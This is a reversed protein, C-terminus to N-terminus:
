HAKHHEGRYIVGTGVEVVGKVLLIGKNAYIKTVLRLETEAVVFECSNPPTWVCTPYRSCIVSASCKALARMEPVWCSLWQNFGPRQTFEDPITALGIVNM